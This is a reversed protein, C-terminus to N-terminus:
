RQMLQVLEDQLVERTQADLSAFPEDMLLIAPNIALARVLGVRQQMGGSLQYPYSKEFGALGVLNLYHGVRERIVAAPAGAIALGFAANDYVTKWPLLGFHQFVMAVGE